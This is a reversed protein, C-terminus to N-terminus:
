EDKVKRKSMREKSILDKLATTSFDHDRRHYFIPKKLEEGTFTKGKYDAGLIRVDYDVAKLLELLDKETDYIVVDDVYKLASLIELRSETSQVPKCKFPRDLTPDTQLAVILFDCVTKADKLMRIYGPHILDFSGCIIGKKYKM